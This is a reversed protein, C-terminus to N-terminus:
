LRPNEYSFGTRISEPDQLYLEVGQLAQDIADGYERPGYINIFIPVIGIPLKGSIVVEASCEDYETFIERLEKLLIEDEFTAYRSLKYNSDNLLGFHYDNQLNGECVGTVRDTSHFTVSFYCDARGTLAAFCVVEAQDSAAM